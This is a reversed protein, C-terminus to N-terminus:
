IEDKTVESAILGGVPSKIIVFVVKMGALFKPEVPLIFEIDQLNSDLIVGVENVPDISQITGHRIM